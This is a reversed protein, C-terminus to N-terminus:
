PDSQPESGHQSSCVVIGDHDPQAADLRVFDRRNLTLVARGDRTAFRVIEADPVGQGALGAEETTLIQHGLRRLEAVVARPFSEDGFLRAM